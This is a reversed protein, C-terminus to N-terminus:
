QGRSKGGCLFTGVREETQTVRQKPIRKALERLEKSDKGLHCAGLSAKM